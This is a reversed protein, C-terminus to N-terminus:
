TRFVLVNESGITDAHGNKKPMRKRGHPIQRELRGVLAVDHAELLDVLARDLPVLDGGVNRNGVTWAM